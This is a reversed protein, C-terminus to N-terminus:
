QISMSLFLIHFNHDYTIITWPAYHNINIHACTIYQCPHSIINIHSSIYQCQIFTHFNYANFIITWPVSHLTCHLIDMYLDEYMLCSKSHLPVIANCQHVTSMAYCPHSYMTCFRCQTQHRHRTRYRQVFDRPHGETTAHFSFMHRASCTPISMGEHSFGSFSPYVAYRGTFTWFIDSPRLSGRHSGLLETAWFSSVLNYKKCEDCLSRTTHYSDPNVQSQNGMAMKMPYHTLTQGPVHPM